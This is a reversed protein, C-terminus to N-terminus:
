FKPSFFESPYTLRLEARDEHLEWLEMRISDGGREDATLLLPAADAQLRLLLTPTPAFLYPTRCSHDLLHEAASLPGRNRASPSQERAALLQMKQDAEGMVLAWSARSRRHGDDLTAAAIHLAREGKARLTMVRRPAGKFDPLLSELAPWPPDSLLVTHGERDDSPDECRADFYHLELHQEPVLPPRHSRPVAIMFDTSPAEASLDDAARPYGDGCHFEGDITLEAWPDPCMDAEEPDARGASDCGGISSVVAAFLGARTVVWLETGIEPLGGDARLVGPEGEVSCRGAMLQDLTPPPLNHPQLDQPKSPEPEARPEAPLLPKAPREHSDIPPTAPTTTTAQCGAALLLAPALLSRLRLRLPERRRSRLAM